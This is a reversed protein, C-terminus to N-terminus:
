FCCTSTWAISSWLHNSTFAVITQVRINPAATDNEISHRTAIERKFIRVCIFEILFDQVTVVKDWTKNGLAALIQDLLDQVSVRCSTDGDLINSSMFPEVLDLRPFELSDYNSLVRYWGYILCQNDHHPVGFIRCTLYSIICKYRNCVRIEIALSNNKYLVVFM